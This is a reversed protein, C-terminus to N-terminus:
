VIEFPTAEVLRAAREADAEPVLLAMKYLAGFFFLLRRFRFARVVCPIGERAFVAQFYEALHVNDLTLVRALPGTRLLTAEDWLDLGVAVFVLIDNLSLLVTVGALSSEWILALAAQGVVLLLTALIWQRRWAAEFGEQPVTAVGGLNAQVRARSSFVWPLLLSLLLMAAATALGTGLPRLGLPGAILSILGYSGVVAPLGQPFPPLRYPLGAGEPTALEVPPRRKLFAGAAVVAAATVLGSMLWWESSYEHDSSSAALVYSRIHLLVDIGLIVALGNGLGLASILAALGLVVFAGAALTIAVIWGPVLGPRAGWPSAVRLLSDALAAAQVLTFVTGLVLATATLRRRGDRGGQRWRLGLGPTLSFLEVLVFAIVFPALGLRLVPVQPGNPVQGSLDILPLRLTHGAVYAAACALTVLARKVM